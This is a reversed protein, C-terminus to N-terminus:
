RVRRVCVSSTVCTLRVTARASRRVLVQRLRDPEPVVEAVRGEAVDALGDEVGAQAFAERAGETVVLVRQPDDLPELAVARAQVQRLRHAVPDRAM